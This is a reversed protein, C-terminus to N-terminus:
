FDIHRRRLRIRCIDCCSSRWRWRRCTTTTDTPPCRSHGDSGFFEAIPEVPEGGSIAAVIRYNYLEFVVDHHEFGSLGLRTSESVDGFRLLEDGVLRNTVDHVRM